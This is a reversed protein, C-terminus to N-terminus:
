VIYAETWYILMVLMFWFSINIELFGPKGSVESHSVRFCLNVAIAIFFRRKKLVMGLLFCTLCISTLGFEAVHKM